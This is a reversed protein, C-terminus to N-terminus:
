FTEPYIVIEIRRNDARGAATQNDGIPHNPGHAVVFLQQAPLNNRRVLQDIVAQAQAGALQTPNSFAGGYLAGTDTHGEVAVRQRAYQGSLSTAVQDILYSGSSVLQATGQGFLQDAPIRIRILDGDQVVRAGPIQPATPSSAAIPVSNNATLKAGGRKNMSAQMGIAQSETQRQALLSQQLQGTTDQLQKALLDARDRAVQMQQQAQALQTTLTRNTDDLLQVRRQLDVIQPAVVQGMPNMGMMAPQTPQLAGGAGMAAYPNPQYPNRNCGLAAIVLGCLCGLWYSNRAWAQMATENEQIATRLHLPTRM